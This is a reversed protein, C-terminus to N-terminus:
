ISKFYEFPQHCAKCFYMSKCATSGFESRLETSTSACFPCALKKPPFQVLGDNELHLPPAIASTRLKEKAEPTLWDTTWAPSLASIVKVPSFGHTTLEAVIEEEIMHMAPCGSYTPTITVTVASGDIAIERVIAMDVVSLAPIEPDRVNELFKLIEAKSQM